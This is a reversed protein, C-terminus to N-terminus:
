GPTRAKDRGPLDLALSYYYRDARFHSLFLVPERKRGVNMLRTIGLLPAGVTIELLRAMPTDAATAEIHQWAEVCKLRLTTRLETIIATHSLDM